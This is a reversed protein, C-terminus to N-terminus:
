AHPVTALRLLRRRVAFADFLALMRAAVRAITHRAHSILKAPLTFVRFRLRKPRANRLEPPLVLRKMAVLVNHTLLSLRYWAANAGLKGSPLVGAGLENKTVDHVHEITGAKQRHAM